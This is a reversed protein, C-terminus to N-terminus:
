RVRRAVVLGFSFPLICVEWHGSARIHEEVPMSVKSIWPGQVPPDCPEAHSFYDHALLLGNKRVLPTYKEFDKQVQIADHASDIWLLDLNRGIKKVDFDNSDVCHLEWWQSLGAREILSKAKAAYNEKDGCTGDDYELSILKGNTERMAYLLAITSIGLRVGIELCLPPVPCVPESHRQDPWNINRACAYLIPLHCRIDHYDGALPELWWGTDRSLAMFEADGFVCSQEVPFVTREVPSLGAFRNAYIAAADVM